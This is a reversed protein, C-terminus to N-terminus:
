SEKPKTSPLSAASPTQGSCALCGGNIRYPAIHGHICTTGRFFLKQGVERAHADTLPLKLWREPVQGVLKSRAEVAKLRRDKEERDNKRYVGEIQM